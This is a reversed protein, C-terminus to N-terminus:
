RPQYNDVPISTLKVKNKHSANYADVLRKSAAETGSRTWMTITVGAADKSDKAGGGSGGCASLAGALLLSTAALLGGVRFRAPHERVPGGRSCRNSAPRPM